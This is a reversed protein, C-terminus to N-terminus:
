FSETERTRCCEATLLAMQYSALTEPGVQVLSAVDSEEELWDFFVRVNQDYSPITRKSWGWATMADVFRALLLDMKRREKPNM